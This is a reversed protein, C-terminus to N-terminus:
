RGAPTEVHVEEATLARGFSFDFRLSTPCVYSGAQAVSPGLVDRLAAHLLHTASHHTATRERQAASITVSASTGAKMVDSIPVDLAEAPQLRVVIVADDLKRVDTVNFTVQENNFNVDVTGKDSVQGGAEPYLHCPNLAVFM